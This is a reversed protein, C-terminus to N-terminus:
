SKSLQWGQELAAREVQGSASVMAPPGSEGWGGVSPCARPRGRPGRSGNKQTPIPTVVQLTLGGLDLTFSSQDLQLDAQRCSKVVRPEVRHTGTVGTIVARYSAALRGPSLPTMKPHIPRLTLVSSPVTQSSSCQLNKGYM